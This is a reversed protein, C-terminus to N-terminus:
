ILIIKKKKEMEVCYNNINFLDSKCMEICSKKQQQQQKTKGNNCENM